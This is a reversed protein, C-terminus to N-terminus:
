CSSAFNLYSIGLLSTVFLYSSPTGLVLRHRRRGRLLSLFSCFFPYLLGRDALCIGLLSIRVVCLTDMRGWRPGAVRTGATARITRRSKKMVQLFSKTDHERHRTTSRCPLSEGVGGVSYGALGVVRPNERVEVM